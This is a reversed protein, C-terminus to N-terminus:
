FNILGIKKPRSNKILVDMWANYRVLTSKLETNAGVSTALELKINDIEKRLIEVAQDRAAISEKLAANEKQLAENEDAAKLANEVVVRPLCVEDTTQGYVAPTIFLLFLLVLTKM